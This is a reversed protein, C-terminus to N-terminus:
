GQQLEKDTNMIDIADKFIPEDAVFTHYQGNEGCPHLGFKDKLYNLYYLKEIVKSMKGAKHKEKDLYTGYV